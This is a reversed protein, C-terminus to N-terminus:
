WIRMTVVNLRSPIRLAEFSAEISTPDTQAKADVAPSRCKQCVWMRETGALSHVLCRNHVRLQKIWEMAADVIKESPREVILRLKKAPEKLLALRSAMDIKSLDHITSSRHKSETFDASFELFELATIVDGVKIGSAKGCYTPGDLIALVICGKCPVAIPCDDSELDCINGRQSLLMELLDSCRETQRLQLGLGQLRGTELQKREIVIVKKEWQLGRSEGDRFNPPRTDGPIRVCFAEELPAYSKIFSTTKQTEKYHDDICEEHM